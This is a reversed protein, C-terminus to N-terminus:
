SRRTDPLIGLREQLRRVDLEARPFPELEIGGGAKRMADDFFEALNLRRKGSEDTRTRRLSESLLQRAQEEMSLGNRAAQVRLEQKVGDDLNRITISAM